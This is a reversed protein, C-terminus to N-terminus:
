GNQYLVPTHCVSLCVCVGVCVSVRHRCIGRKAYGRATFIFCIATQAVLVEGTCSGAHWIPDCLTVQWRASAADGVRVRAMQYKIQGGILFLLSLLGLSICTFSKGLTSISTSAIVPTLQNLRGEAGSPMTPM